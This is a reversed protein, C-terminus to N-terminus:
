KIIISNDINTFSSLSQVCLLFTHTDCTYNTILDIRKLFLEELLICLIPSVNDRAAASMKEAIKQWVFSRIIHRPADDTKVAQFRIFFVADAHFLIGFTARVKVHRLFM